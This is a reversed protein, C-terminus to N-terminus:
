ENGNSEIGGTREREINMKEKELALEREKLELEKEKKELDSQRTKDKEANKGTIMNIIKSCGAFQLFLVAVAIVVYRLKM